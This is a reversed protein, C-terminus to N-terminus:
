RVTESQELGLVGRGVSWLASPSLVGLETVYRAPMRELNPAPFRITSLARLQGYSDLRDASDGPKVALIVRESSRRDLKLLETPVYFPM